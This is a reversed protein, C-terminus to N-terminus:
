CAGPDFGKAGLRRVFLALFARLAKIGGRVQDWVKWASDAKGDLWGAVGIMVPMGASSDVQLSIRSGLFLDLCPFFLM